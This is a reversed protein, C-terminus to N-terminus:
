SASGTVGCHRRLEAELSDLSEIGASRRRLMTEHGLSYLILERGSRLQLALYTSAQGDPDPTPNRRTGLGVRTVDLVEDVPVSHIRAGNRVMVRGDDLRVVSFAYLMACVALAAIVAGFFADIFDGSNGRLRLVFGVALLTVVVMAASALRQHDISRLKM